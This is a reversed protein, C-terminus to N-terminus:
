KKYHKGKKSLDAKEMLTIAENKGILSIICDYDSSKINLIATNSLNM